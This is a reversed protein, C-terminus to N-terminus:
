RGWVAASSRPVEAEPLDEYYRLVIVARQKRTLQALISALTIRLVSDGALDGTTGTEPPGAMVLEDKGKRSRWWSVQQHYLVKRVYADM